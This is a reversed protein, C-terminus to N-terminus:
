KRIKALGRNMRCYVGIIREASKLTLLHSNSISVLPGHKRSHLMHYGIDFRKDKVASLNCRCVTPCQVSLIDLKLTVEQIFDILSNM